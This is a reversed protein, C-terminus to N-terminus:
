AGLPSRLGRRVAERLARAKLLLDEQYVQMLAYLDLREKEGLRGAQQADLLRSLRADQDAPWELDALAIVREDPLDAMPVEDSRPDILPTLTIEITEALVESVQRETLEALRQARRYATDSVTLTVQTGM